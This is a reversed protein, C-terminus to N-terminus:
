IGSFIEHKVTIVIVPKIPQKACKKKVKFFTKKKQPFDPIEFALM